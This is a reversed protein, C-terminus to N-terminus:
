TLMAQPGAAMATPNARGALLFCVWVPFIKDTIWKVDRCLIFSTNNGIERMIYATIM